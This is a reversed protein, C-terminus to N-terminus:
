SKGTRFSCFNRSLVLYIKFLDCSSKDCKYCSGELSNTNQTNRTGYKSPALIEKFHKSRRYVPIISNKPFLEKLKANSELFHPHKKIIYNINRM